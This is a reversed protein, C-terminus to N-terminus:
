EQRFFSASPWAIPGADTAPDIDLRAFARKEDPTLEAPSTKSIGLRHLRQAVAHDVDAGFAAGSLPKTVVDM